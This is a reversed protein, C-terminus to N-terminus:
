GPAFFNHTKLILKKRSKRLDVHAEKTTSHSHVLDMLANHVNACSTLSLVWLNRSSESLGRDSTLGGRSKISRMLTQEICLDTWIGNWFKQTRRATHDGNMFSDYLEPHTTSLNQMEQLYLRACKGYNGHGTAAFLNLMESVCHLHTEWDHFREAYIFLKMVEVYRM